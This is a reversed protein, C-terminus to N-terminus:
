RRQVVWEAGGELGVDVVNGSVEVADGEIASVVVSKSLTVPLLLLRWARWLLGIWRVLLIIRWVGILWIGIDVVVRGVVGIPDLVRAVGCCGWDRGCGCEFACRLSFIGGVVAAGAGAGAGGDGGGKGRENVSETAKRFDGGGLLM